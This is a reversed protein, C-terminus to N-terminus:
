DAYNYIRLKDTLAPRSLEWDTEYCFAIEREILLFYFYNKKQWISISLYDIQNLM